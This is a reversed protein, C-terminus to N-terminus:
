IAPYHEVATRLWQVRVTPTFTYSGGLSKGAPCNANAAYYVYNVTMWLEDYPQGYGWRATSTDPMTFDYYQTGTSTVTHNVCKGAKSAFAGRLTPCIAVTLNLTCGGLQLPANAVLQIAGSGYPEYSYSYWASAVGPIPATQPWLPYRFVVQSTAVQGITTIANSVAAVDATTTGSAYVVAERVEGVEVDLQPDPLDACASILLATLSFLLLFLRKM